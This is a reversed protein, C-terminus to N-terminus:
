RHRLHSRVKPSVASFAFAGSYLKSNTGGLYLESGSKALKFAFIPQAVQKQAVLSSFVPPQNFASISQYAMGMLGDPPFNALSFGDSYTDAAGLTQKTATLGGIAVTDTYQEGSVSSGDGYSLTFTKGRDASATSASPAYTKHGVCNTSKCDPGPLFLDSSGTDFDLMLTQAPSGIQVPSLYAEDNAEPQNPVSGTAAAAAAEAAEHVNSPVQVQYKRLAKAYQRAGNKKYGSQPVPVQSVSFAGVSGVQDEQSTPTPAALTVSAFAAAAVLATNYLM